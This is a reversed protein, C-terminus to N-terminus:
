LLGVSHHRATTIQNPNVDDWKLLIKVAGEYGNKAVWQLPAEGDNDPQEHNAEYGGLLIKM